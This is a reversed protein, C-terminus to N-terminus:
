WVIEKENEGSPLKKIESYFVPDLSLQLFAQPQWRSPAGLGGGGAAVALGMGARACRRGAAGPGHQCAPWAGV